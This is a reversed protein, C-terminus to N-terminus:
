LVHSAYVQKVTDNKRWTVVYANEGEGALPVPTHIGLTGLLVSCKGFRQNPLNIERLKKTLPTLYRSMRTDTVRLYLESNKPM